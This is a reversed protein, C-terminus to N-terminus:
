HEGEAGRESKQSEKWGRCSRSMAGLGEVRPLFAARGHGVESDSCHSEEEGSSAAIVRDIHDQSGTKITNTDSRISEADSDTEQSLGLINSSYLSRPIELHSMQVAEDQGQAVGDVDETSNTM